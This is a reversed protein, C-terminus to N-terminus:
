IKEIVLNVFLFAATVGTNRLSVLTNDTVAVVIGTAGLAHRNNAQATHQISINTANGNQQVTLAVLGDVTPVATASFTVNYVGNNLRLTATDTNEIDNGIFLIDNLPLEAGTPLAGTDPNIYYALGPLPKIIRETCAANRRAVLSRNRRIRNNM